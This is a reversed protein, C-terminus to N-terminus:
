FPDYGNESIAQLFSTFPFDSGGAVISFVIKKHTISGSCGQVFLVYRYIQEFRRIIQSTSGSMNVNACVGAKGFFSVKNKSFPNTPLPITRYPIM